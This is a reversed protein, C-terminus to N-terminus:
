VWRRGVSKGEGCVCHELGDENNSGESGGGVGRAIAGTRKGCNHRYGAVTPPTHRGASHAHRLTAVATGHAKGHQVRRNARGTHTHAPSDPQPEDSVDHMM